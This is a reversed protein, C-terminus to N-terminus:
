NCANRMRILPLVSTSDGHNVADMAPVVLLCSSTRITEVDAFGGRDVFVRRDEIM